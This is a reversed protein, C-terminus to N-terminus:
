IKCVCESVTGSSAREIVLSPKLKLVASCDLLDSCQYKDRIDLNVKPKRSRTHMMESGQAETEEAMFALFHIWVMLFIGPCSLHATPFFFRTNDRSRGQASNKGLTILYNIVVWISVSFRFFLLLCMPRKKKKKEQNMKRHKTQLRHTFTVTSDFGSPSPFRHDSFTLARGGSPSTTCASCGCAARQAM